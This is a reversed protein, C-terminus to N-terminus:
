HPIRVNEFVRRYASSGALAGRTSVAVDLSQATVETAQHRAHVGILMFTLRQSRKHMHM